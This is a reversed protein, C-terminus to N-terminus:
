PLLQFVPDLRFARRGESKAGGSGAAAYRELRQVPQPAPVGSVPCHRLRRVSCPLLFSSALGYDGELAQPSAGENKCSGLCDFRALDPRIIAALVNLRVAAADDFHSIGPVPKPFVTRLSSGAFRFTVRQEENLTVFFYGDAKVGLDYNGSETAAIPTDWRVNLHDKGVPNRPLSGADLLISRETRSALPKASDWGNPEEM